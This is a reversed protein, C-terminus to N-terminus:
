RRTGRLLITRSVSNQHELMVAGSATARAALRGRRALAKTGRATLTVAVAAAAGPRLAFRGSGITRRGQSLLLRGRCFGATQETCAVRVRAVANRGVTARRTPIAMGPGGTSRPDDYFMGHVSGGGPYPWTAVVANTRHDIVGVGGPDDLSVFTYRSNASLWNHGAVRVGPFVIKSVSFDRLNIVDVEAPTSRLAVVLFSEDPAIQLTDPQDGVAVRRVVQRANLDIVHIEDANRVSLYGTRRDRSVYLESPNDGTPMSWQVDGTEADLAVLKNVSSNVAYLTRGGHTPAPAHTRESSPGTAWEAILSDTMTDIVAIKNTGFEAVYVRSGDASAHM